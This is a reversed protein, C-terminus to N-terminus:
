RFEEQWEQALSLPIGAAIWDRRHYADQTALLVRWKGGRVGYVCATLCVFGDADNEDGMLEAPLTGRFHGQTIEGVRVIWDIGYRGVWFPTRNDGCMATCNSNELDAIFRTVVDPPALHVLVTASRDGHTFVLVPERGFKDSANPPGPCGPEDQHSTVYETRVGLKEWFRAPVCITGGLERMPELFIVPDGADTFCVCSGMTLKLRIGDLSVYVDPKRVEVTAGAWDAIGLLPAYATDGYSYAHVNRLMRFVGFQPTAYSASCCLLLLGVLCRAAKM